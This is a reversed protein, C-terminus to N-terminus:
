CSNRPYTELCLFLVRHCSAKSRPECINVDENLENNNNKKRECAEPDEVEMEHCCGGRLPQYTTGVQIPRLTVKNHNERGPPAARVM